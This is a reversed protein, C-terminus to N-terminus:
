KIPFADKYRDKAREKRKVNTTFDRYCTRHIQSVKNNMIDTGTREKTRSVLEAVALNGYRQM